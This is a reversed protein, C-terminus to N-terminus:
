NLNDVINACKMQIDVVLGQNPISFFSCHGNFSKVRCYINSIGMGTRYSKESVELGGIGNDEFLIYLIARFEFVIIAIRSAEGHKLSNNILEAIIRYAALELQPSLVAAAM